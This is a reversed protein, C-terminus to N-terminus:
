EPKYSWRYHPPVPGKNREGQQMQEYGHAMAGVSRALCFLGRALEAPFDLEAYIVASAGDINMPIPKGQMQALVEEIQLACRMLQGSIVGNEKAESVMTM